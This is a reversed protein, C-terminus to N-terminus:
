EQECKRSSRLRAIETAAEELLQANNARGHERTRVAASHLRQPLDGLPDDYVTWKLAAAWAMHAIVRCQDPARDELGRTDLKSWWEDFTM